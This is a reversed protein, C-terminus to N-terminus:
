TEGNLPEALIDKNSGEELIYEEEIKAYRRLIAGFPFFDDISPVEYLPGLNVIHNGELSEGYLRDDMIYLHEELPFSEQNRISFRGIQKAEDNSPEPSHQEEEITGVGEQPSSEVLKDSPELEQEELEIRSAVTPLLATPHGVQEKVKEIAEQFLECTFESHGSDHIRCWGLLLLVGLDVQHRLKEWDRTIRSVLENYREVM